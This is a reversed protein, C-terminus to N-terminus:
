VCNMRGQGPHAFNGLNVFLQHGSL